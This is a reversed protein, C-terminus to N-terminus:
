GLPQRVGPGVATVALLKVEPVCHGRRGAQGAGACLESGTEENALYEPSDCRRCRHGAGTFMEQTKFAVLPLKVAVVKGTQTLISFAM